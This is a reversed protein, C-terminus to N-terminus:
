DMHIRKNTPDLTISIGLAWTRWIDFRENKISTKSVMEDLHTIYNRLLQANNWNSAEKLLDAQLQAEDALRKVEAQRLKEAEDRLRNQEEFNRHWKELERSHERAIVILKYIKIFVFNLKNELPEGDKDSIEIENYRGSSSLFIRLLGTPSQVRNSSFYNISEDVERISSKLKESARIYVTEYNTKIELKRNSKDIKVIMGRAEAAFLIASIIALARDGIQPSFRFPLGVQQFEIIQGRSIFYDLKYDLRVQTRTVQSRALEKESKIKLREYELAESTFHRQAELLLPHLKKASIDISIFNAIDQEFKERDSLWQNDATLEPTEDKIPAPNSIFVNKESHEPLPTKKVKHGAAVKTWHGAIPLPINLAKCIKRIGNDSLGYKKGLKTLPTTWVEEYLSKREFKITM